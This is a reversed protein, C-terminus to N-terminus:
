VYEKCEPCVCADDELLEGCCESIRYAMKLTERKDAGPEDVFMTSGNWDFYYGGMNSAEVYEFGQDQLTKVDLEQLNMDIQKLRSQYLNDLQKHLEMGQFYVESLTPNSM